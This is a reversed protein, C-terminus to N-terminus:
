TRGRVGPIITCIRKQSTLSSIQCCGFGFGAYIVQLQNHDPFLLKTLAEAAAARSTVDHHAHSSLTRTSDKCTLEMPLFVVATELLQTDPSLIPDHHYVSIKLDFVLEPPGIHM